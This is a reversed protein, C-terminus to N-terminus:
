TASGMLLGLRQRARSLRAMVTAPPVELLAAVEEYTLKEVAVLMLVEREHVPLQWLLAIVGNDHSAPGSPAAESPRRSEHLRHMIAMVSVTSSRGRAGRTRRAQSLTDAVLDDAADPRGTLVRAYRRLRPLM